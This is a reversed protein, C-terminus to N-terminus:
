QEYIRVSCAPYAGVKKLSRSAIVYHQFEVSIIVPLIKSLKLYYFVFALGETCVCIVATSKTQTMINGVDFIENKNTLPSSLM